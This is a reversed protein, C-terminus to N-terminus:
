AGPRTAIILMAPAQGFGAPKQFTMVKPPAVGADKQEGTWTDVWRATADTEMDKLNVTIRPGPEYFVRTRGGDCLASGGVALENYPTMRWYAVSTLIEKMLQWRAHGPPEPDPKVIDWATNNYYYYAADGGAMYILYARHLM